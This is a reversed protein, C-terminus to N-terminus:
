TRRYLQLGTLYRALDRRSIFSLLPILIVGTGITLLSRWLVQMPYYGDKQQPDTGMQCDFTWEGLTCGFLSRSTVVYIQLVVVFLMIASIQATLDQTLSFM